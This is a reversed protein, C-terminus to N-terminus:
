QQYENCTEPESLGLVEAQYLNKTITM